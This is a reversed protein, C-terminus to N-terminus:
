GAPAKSRATGHQQRRGRQPECDEDERLIAGQRLEAHLRRLGLQRLGLRLTRLRLRGHRLRCRSAGCGTGGACAAVGGVCFSPKKSASPFHHSLDAASHPNPAHLLELARDVLGIRAIGLGGGIGRTIGRSRGLIGGVRQDFNGVVRMMSPLSRHRSAGFPEGSQLAAASFIQLPLPNADPLLASIWDARFHEARAKSERLSASQTLSVM